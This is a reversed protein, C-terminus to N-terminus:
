NFTTLKDLLENASLSMTVSDSINGRIIHLSDQYTVVSDNVLGQWTLSDLRTAGNTIVPHFLSSNTSYTRGSWWYHLGTLTDSNFVDFFHKSRIQTRPKDTGQLEDQWAIVEHNYPLSRNINNPFSTDSIFMRMTDAQLSRVVVPLAAFSNNDNDSLVAQFYPAGATPITPPRGADFSMEFFEPLYREVGNLIAPVGTPIPRLRTYRINNSEQWVLSADLQAHDRNSYPNLSPYLARGSHAERFTEGGVDQYLIDRGPVLGVGVPKKFYVQNWPKYGYGIGNQVYQNPTDTSWAYHNGFLAANIVPTGWRSLGGISDTVINDLRNIVVLSRGSQEIVPSNLSDIDSFVNEVIHAFQPRAAGEAWMDQCSYVVHVQPPSTEEDQRVVISPFGCSCDLKDEVNEMRAASYETSDAHYAVSITDLTTGVSLRVSTTEWVLGAVSPVNDRSFPRSRRYFVTWVGQRLNDIDKAHYALHYRLSDTEIWNGTTDQRYHPFVVFKNQTNFALFGETVSTQAPLRKVRLYKTEGPLFDLSLSKEGNIITDVALHQDTKTVLQRVHLLYPKSNDLSYKFPISIRRAGIQKYRLDPRTSRTLNDFDYSSVFEVSDPRSNNYLHPSSRRNTLALVCNDDSTSDESLDMLVLDYMTETTPEIEMVLTTDTESKRVWKKFEM